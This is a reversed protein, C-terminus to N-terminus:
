VKRNTRGPVEREVESGDQRTRRELTRRWRFIAHIVVVVVAAVSRAFLAAMVDVPTM